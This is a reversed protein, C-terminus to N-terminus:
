RSDLADQEWPYYGDANKHAGYGAEEMASSPSRYWAACHLRFKATLSRAMSARRWSLQVVHKDGHGTHWGPQEGNKMYTM